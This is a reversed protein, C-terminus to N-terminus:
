IGIYQRAKIKTKSNPKFGLANSKKFCYFTSSYPVNRQISGVRIIIPLVALIGKWVSVGPNETGTQIVCSKDFYSGRVRFRAPRYQFDIFIM